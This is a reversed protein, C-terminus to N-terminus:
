ESEGNATDQGSKSWHSACVKGLGERVLIWAVVAATGPIAVPKVLQMVMAAASVLNLTSSDSMHVELADSKCVRETLEGRQLRLWAVARERSSKADQRVWRGFDAGVEAGLSEYLRDLSEQSLREFEDRESSM